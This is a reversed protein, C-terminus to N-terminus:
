EGGHRLVLYGSGDGHLTRKLREVLPMSPASFAIRCGVDSYGFRADRVDVSYPTEPIEEPPSLASAGIVSVRGKAGDVFSNLFAGTPTFQRESVM